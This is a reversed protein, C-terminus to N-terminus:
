EEHNLLLFYESCFNNSVRSFGPYLESVSIGRM